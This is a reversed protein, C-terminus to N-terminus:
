VMTDLTEDPAIGRPVGFREHIERGLATASMPLVDRSLCFSVEKPYPGQCHYARMARPIRERVAQPDRLRFGLFSGMQTRYLVIAEIEDAAIFGEPLPAAADAPRKGVVLLPGRWRLRGFVYYIGGLCLCLSMFGIGGVLNRFPVDMMAVVLLGAGVMAGVVGCCFEVVQKRRNPYVVLLGDPGESM